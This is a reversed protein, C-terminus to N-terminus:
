KFFITVGVQASLSTRDNDMSIETCSGNINSCSTYKIKGLGRDYVAGIDLYINKAIGVLRGIKLQVHQSSYKQGKPGSKVYGFSFGGYFTKYFYRAGLQIGLGVSTDYDKAWSVGFSLAADLSINDVIFYSVAPNISFDSISPSDKDLKYNQISIKGGLSKTGAEFGFLSVALVLFVCLLLSKKM